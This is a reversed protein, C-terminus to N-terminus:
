PNQSNIVTAVLSDAYDPYDTSPFHPSGYESLTSLHDIAKKTMQAATVLNLHHRHDTHVTAHDLRAMAKMAAIAHDMPHPMAEARKAILNLHREEDSPTTYPVELDELIELSPQAQPNLGSNCALCPSRRRIGEHCIIWSTDDDQVQHCVTDEPLNATAEELATMIETEHPTNRIWVVVADAFQEELRDLNQDLLEAHMEGIEETNDYQEPSYALTTLATRMHFLALTSNVWFHLSNTRHKRAATAAAKVVPKAYKSNGLMQKAAMVLHAMGVIYHDTPTGTPKFLGELTMTPPMFM